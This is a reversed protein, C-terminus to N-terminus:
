QSTSPVHIFDVRAGTDIGHRACFGAHVELVFQSPAAVGLPNTSFPRTDAVIGVVQRDRGIFVMDLPLPTNKMWFHQPTENPFVFLMGADPALDRRYMLGHARADPTAVVEVPVRVPGTAAHIVVEPRPTCAHLAFSVLFVAARLCWGGAAWRRARGQM